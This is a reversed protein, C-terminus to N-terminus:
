ADEVGGGTPWFRDYGPPLRYPRKPEFAAWVLACLRRIAVEAENDKTWRQDKGNDTYVALLYPRGCFVIANESRSRNIAGSKCAVRVDVPVSSGVFDDWYQHSLVRLLKECGADGAAKRAYLLRWLRAMENPTTVGLGFQGRLRRLEPQDARFGPWLIKTNPLGLSAMRANVADPTLWDRLVITATNDSVSLMLNLWGDVDLKTGDKFWYSWMSAERGQLPPVARKDTWKLRGEEIQRIAELAVATKITSATPFREDARYGIQAGTRLDVVCYGMRGHFGACLADLKNKLSSLAVLTSLAALVLAIIAREDAQM